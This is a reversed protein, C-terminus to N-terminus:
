KAGDKKGALKNMAEPSIRLSFSTQEETKAKKEIAKTLNFYQLKLLISCVIGVLTAYLAKSMGHGFSTIFANMSAVNNMDLQEFGGLMLVFGIVTGLMGLTLCLESYFWGTENWGEAKKKFQEDWNGGDQARCVARTSLGCLPSVVMFVAMIIFSVYTDDKQAIKSVLGAKWVFALGVM